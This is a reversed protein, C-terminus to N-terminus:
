RVVESHPVLRIGDHTFWIRASRSVVDPGNLFRKDGYQTTFQTASWDREPDDLPLGSQRERHYVSAQVFESLKRLRAPPWGNGPIDSLNFTLGNSLVIEGTGEDVTRVWYAPM